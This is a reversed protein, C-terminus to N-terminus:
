ENDDEEVDLAVAGEVAAIYRLVNESFGDIHVWKGYGVGNKASAVNIVYGRAGAIPDPLHKGDYSAHSQEDSIVILRDYGGIRNVNDVADLLNTGGHPQSNKIADIMAMGVRPPVQVLQWSFSYVRLDEARAPFIAALAAAADMRKLQSRGAMAHNMSGSVDVLLVTRGTFADLNAIKSVLAEDLWPELDPAARAAAVYRMPLVRRSGVGARIAAHILGRDVGASVMNRLNRLLALFGLKREQLLRTFTEKKDAGRTLAIEWTDPVALVRKVVRQWLSSEVPDDPKPRAIRLVDRLKIAGERDYKALQYESFKHCAQALGKRLQAPKHQKGNIKQYVALLEAMEDVRQICRGITNRVLGDTRNRGTRILATLLLLPVHRMHAQERAEIAIEAVKQPDLKIATNFIRKAIEEGDEYFEKEWLMCSMVSRRLLQEDTMHPWAPAGEHTFVQPAAATVNLRAM